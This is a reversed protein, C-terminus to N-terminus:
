SARFLLQEIRRATADPRGYDSWDLRFMAYSTAERLKDERRKEDFVADSASQGPKLLPGYKVRGDFEGLLRHDPWGWDSVGLLVGERDFVKFQLEPAPLHHTWFM